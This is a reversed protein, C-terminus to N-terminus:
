VFLYTEGSKVKEAFSAISNEELEKRFTKKLPQVSFHVPCPKESSCKKLGLVCEDLRDTGDIIKVVELLPRQQAEPTLYFGGTPGKSSSVINERSLTQLLKALFPSPLKIAEAIEKARIKNIQSSHVALYLVANVAYKSSSSLM